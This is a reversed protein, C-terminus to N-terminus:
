AVGSTKAEEANADRRGVFRGRAGRVMDAYHLRAHDAHSLVMLNSPDNNLKNGDIHHVDMGDTLTIGLVTMAILRNYRIKKGGRRVIKYGRSM